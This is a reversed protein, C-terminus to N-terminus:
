CSSCLKLEAGSGQAPLASLGRPFECSMRSFTRRPGGQVASHAAAIPMVDFAAALLSPCPRRVALSGSIFDAQQRAVARPPPEADDFLKSGMYAQVGTM